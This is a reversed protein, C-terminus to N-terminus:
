ALLARFASAALVGGIAPGAVPIWAYSWDSSGKGAIPLLAHAIRPGLDRAPNIAYGTTGGLSLGIGWVLAGILMPVVNSAPQTGQASVSTIASAVFVLAATGIVESLLNPRTARVAPSTSFCALKAGQDNTRAWHPLYHLWVLTAGVIAGAFQAVIHALADGTTRIGVVVNALTVAPNLEGPAGFASATFVGLLVGLAWGTAIVIWGSSEAKSDKLLVGAVVGNGFLILVLTGLFEGLATAPM